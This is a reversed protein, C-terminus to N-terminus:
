EEDNQPTPAPKQYLNKVLAARASRINMINKQMDTLLYLMEDTCLEDRETVTKRLMRHFNSVIEGGSNLFDLYAQMLIPLDQKLAPATTPPVTQRAHYLDQINHRLDTLFTSLNKAETHTFTNNNVTIRIAPCIGNILDGGHNIYNQYAEMFADTAQYLAKTPASSFTPQNMM